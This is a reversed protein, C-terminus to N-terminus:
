GTQKGNENYQEDQVNASNHANAELFNNQQVVRGSIHCRIDNGRIHVPDPKLIKLETEAGSDSQEVGHNVERKNDAGVPYAPLQVIRTQPLPPNAHSYAQTFM